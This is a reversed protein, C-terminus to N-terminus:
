VNSLTLTLAMGVGVSNTIEKLNFVYTTNMKVSCNYKVLIPNFILNNCLLCLIDVASRMCIINIGFAFPNLM